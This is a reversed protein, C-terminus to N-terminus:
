KLLEGATAALDAGTRAIETTKTIWYAAFVWVAAFEVRYVLHRDTAEFAREGIYSFYAATLPLVIMAVGYLLYLVKFLDRRTRSSILSLTAKSDFICSVAICIFFLVAAIAHPVPLMFTELLRKECVVDLKNCAVLTPCVAIVVACVGAVNLLYNERRTFGRYLYLFSGIIFLCGVFINRLPTHYYASMSPQFQTQLAPIFEGVVWLSPPFLIAVGAVGIRLDSYTSAIHHQLANAM